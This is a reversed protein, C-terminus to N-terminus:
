PCIFDSGFKAVTSRSISAEASHARSLNGPVRVGAESGCEKSVVHSENTMALHNKRMASKTALTICRRVLYGSSSAPIRFYVCCVAAYRWSAASSVAAAARAVRKRSTEGANNYNVTSYIATRRDQTRATYTNSQSVWLVHIRVDLALRVARPELVQLAAEVRGHRGLLQAIQVDRPHTHACISRYSPTHRRINPSLRTIAHQTRGQHWLEMM